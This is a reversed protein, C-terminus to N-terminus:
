RHHAVAHEGMRRDGFLILPLFWDTESVNIYARRIRSSNTRARHSQTKAINM